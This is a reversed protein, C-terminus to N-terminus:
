GKACLDLIRLHSTQDKIGTAAVCTQILILIYFVFTPM